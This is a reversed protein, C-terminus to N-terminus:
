GTKTLDLRGGWRRDLAERAPIHDLRELCPDEDVLTFADTKADSLTRCDRM